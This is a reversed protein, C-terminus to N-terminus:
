GEGALDERAGLGRQHITGPGPATLISVCTEYAAALKDAPVYGELTVAFAHIMRALQDQTVPGLQQELAVLERAFKTCRQLADIARVLPADSGFPGVEKNLDVKQLYYDALTKAAALQPRLDLLNRDDLHHLYLARLEPHSELLLRMTEPQAVTGTVVAAVAPNKRIGARERKEYGAGHMGCARMGRRAARPCQWFVGDRVRWRQCRPLGDKHRSSPATRAELPQPPAAAQKGKPRRKPVRRM